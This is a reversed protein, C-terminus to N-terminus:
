EIAFILDSAEAGTIFRHLEVPLQVQDKEIVTFGNENLLKKYFEYTQTKQTNVKYMTVKVTQGNISPTVTPSITGSIKPTVVPIKADSFDLKLNNKFIFSKLKTYDAYRKSNTWVEKVKANEVLLYPNQLYFKILAAVHEYSQNNSKQDIPRVEFAGNWMDGKLLQNTYSGFSPDLVMSFTQIDKLVDRSAIGNSIDTGSINYLKINQGLIKILNPISDAQKFLSSNIFKEKVANVVQQQRYARRYDNGEFVPDGATMGRCTDHVRSRSFKLATSGDMHQKGRYFKVTLTGTDNDNPYGADCFTNEVNIDVGGLTDIIEKFGSFNIMAGYHLPLGTIEEITNGLNKFCEDYSKTANYTYPCISNIKEKHLTNNVKYKVKLDRPFSIQATLHTKHDYSMLMMSDTLLSAGNKGRTDVGLILVNTRENTQALKEIAKSNPQQIITKGLNLVDGASIKVGTKKFQYFVYGISSGIIFIIILFLALVTLILKHHRIWGKPKESAKTTHVPRKDLASYGNSFSQKTLRNIQVAPRFQLPQPRKQSLNKTNSKRKSDGLNM